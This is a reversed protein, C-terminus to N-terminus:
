ILDVIREVSDSFISPLQALDDGPFDIFNMKGAGIRKYRPFATIGPMEEVVLFTVVSKAQWNERIRALILVDVTESQFSHRHPISSWGLEDLIVESKELGNLQLRFGDPGQPLTLKLTKIPAQVRLDVSKLASTMPEGVWNISCDIVRLFPVYPREGAFLPFQILDDWVSWTWSPLGAITSKRPVGGDGKRGVSQWALDLSLREYSLGLLPILDYKKSYWKVVGALAALRDTSFTFQKHSYVSMLNQWDQDMVVDGPLLKEAEQNIYSCDESKVLCRFHWYVQDKAFHLKRRSLLMEQFV